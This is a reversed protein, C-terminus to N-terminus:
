IPPAGTERLTFSSISGCAESSRGSKDYWRGPVPTSGPGWGATKDIVGGDWSYSGDYDLFRFGQNYVGVKTRGDGNRHGTM